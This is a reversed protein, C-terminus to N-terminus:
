QKNYKDKKLSFRGSLSSPHLLFVNAEQPPIFGDTNSTEKKSDSLVVINEGKLHLGFVLKGKDNSIEIRNWKERPVSHLIYKDYEHAKQIIHSGNETFLNIKCNSSSCMQVREKAKDISEARWKIDKVLTEVEGYKNELYKRKEKLQIVENEISDSKSKLLKIKRQLENFKEEKEVNVKNAWDDLKSEIIDVTDNINNRLIERAAARDSERLEYIGSFFFDWISKLGYKFGTMKSKVADKSTRSLGLIKKDITFPNLDSGRQNIDNLLGIQSESVNHMEDVLSHFATKFGDDLYSLFGKKANLTRIESLITAKNSKLLSYLAESMNEYREKVQKQLSNVKQIEEKKDEKGICTINEKIQQIGNQLVEELRKGYKSADRWRNAWMNVGIWTMCDEELRRWLFTLSAKIEDPANDGLGLPIIVPEKICPVGVVDSLLETLDERKKGLFDKGEWIRESDSSYDKPPIMDEKMHTSLSLDWFTLAFTVQRYDDPSSVFRKGLELLAANNTPSNLRRSDLLVVIKDPRRDLFESILDKHYSVPSCLGATDIMNLNSFKESQVYCTAKKVRMAHSPTTLYEHFLNLNDDNTLDITQDDCKNFVVEFTRNIREVSIVPRTKLIRRTKSKFKTKEKLLKFYDSLDEIEKLLKKSNTLDIKQENTTEYISKVGFDKKNHIWESLAEIAKRDPSRMDQSFLIVKVVDRFSLVGEKKNGYCVRTVAATTPTRGKPLIDAGLLKNILTSKGSSFAGLIAVQPTDNQWLSITDILDSQFLTIKDDINEISRACFYIRSLLEISDERIRNNHFRNPHHSSICSERYICSNDGCNRPTIISKTPDFVKGYIGFCQMKSNNRQKLRFADTRSRVQLNRFPYDPSLWFLMNNKKTKESM